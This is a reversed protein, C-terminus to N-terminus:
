RMAAVGLFRAEALPDNFAVLVIPTTGHDELPRPTSFYRIYPALRATMTSPLVARREWELFFPQTTSGRRVIGFADPRISRLTDDLRFYRFARRPPDLQLLECREARCHSALQAIFRHVAETHEANRLLQRTRDGRVNRWTLPASPDIPNVSWRKLATGVAARDGRALM